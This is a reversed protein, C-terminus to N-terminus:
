KKAPPTCGIARGVRAARGRVDGEARRIRDRNADPLGPAAADLALRDGLELAADYAKSLERAFLDRDTARLQAARAEALDLEAYITTADRPPDHSYLGQCRDARPGLLVAAERASTIRRSEASADYLEVRFRSVHLDGAVRFGPGDGDDSTPLASRSFADELCARFPATDHAPTGEAPELATVHAKAFRSTGGEVVFDVTAVYGGKFSLAELEKEWCSVVLPLRTPVAAEALKKAVAPGGGCGALGALAAMVLAIRPGIM